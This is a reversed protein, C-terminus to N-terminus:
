GRRRRSMLDDFSKSGGDAFLGVAFGAAGLVLALLFGIFGGAAAAVAVLLGAFLGIVPISM